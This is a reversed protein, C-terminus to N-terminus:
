PKVGWKIMKSASKRTLRKALVLSVLELLVLVVIWWSHLYVIVCFLYLFFMRWDLFLIPRNQFFCIALTTFVYLFFLFFFVLYAPFNLLYAFSKYLASILLHTFPVHCSCLRYMARDSYHLCDAFYIVVVCIWVCCHTHWCIGLRPILPQMLWANTCM